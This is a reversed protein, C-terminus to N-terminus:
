CAEPVRQSLSRRLARRSTAVREGTDLFRVLATRMSGGAAEIVCARGFLEARRANPMGEPGNRWAYAYVQVIV